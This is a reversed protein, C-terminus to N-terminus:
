HRLREAPAGRFVAQRRCMREALWVFPAVWALELLVAAVNYWGVISALWAATGTSPGGDHRVGLLLQVPSYNVVAITAAGRPQLITWLNSASLEHVYPNAAVYHIDDSVYPGELAPGYM